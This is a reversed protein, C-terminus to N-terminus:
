EGMHYLLDYLGVRRGADEKWRGQLDHAVISSSIANDEVNKAPSIRAPKRVRKLARGDAALLALLLAVIRWATMTEVSLPRSAHM